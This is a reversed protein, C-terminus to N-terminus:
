AKVTDGTIACVGDVLEQLADDHGNFGERVEASFERLPKKTAPDTNFYGALIALRGKAAM